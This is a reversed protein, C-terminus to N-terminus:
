INKSTIIFIFYVYYFTVYILLYLVFFLLLILHDSNLRPYLGNYLFQKLM